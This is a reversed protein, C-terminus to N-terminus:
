MNIDIMSLDPDQQRWPVWKDLIWSLMVKNAAARQDQTMGRGNSAAPWNAVMKVFDAEAKYKKTDFWSAMAYSLLVEADKVSQKRTGVLM